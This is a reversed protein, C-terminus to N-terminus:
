WLTPQNNKFYSDGFISDSGSSVKSKVTSGPGYYKSFVDSPKDSKSLEANYASVYPQDEYAKKKLNFDDTQLGLTKSFQDTQNETNINFKGVDMTAGANFQQANQVLRAWDLDTNQQSTILGSLTNAKNLAANIGAEQAGITQANSQLNAGIGSNLANQNAATNGSVLAAIANLNNLKDTNNQSLLGFENLVADNNANEVYAGISSGAARSGGMGKQILANTLATQGPLSKELYAERVRALENLVDESTTGITGTIEGLKRSATQQNLANQGTPSFTSTGNSIVVQGEPTVFTNLTPQSSINTNIGNLKNKLANIEADYKSDGSGSPVSITSVKLKDKAM